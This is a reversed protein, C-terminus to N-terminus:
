RTAEGARIDVPSVDAGPPTIARPRPLGDFYLDIERERRTRLGAWVKGGALVWRRFQGPVQGDQRANVVKLLTSSRFNSGGVNFVFDCLAAYQGDLMPVTVSQMVISQAQAMDEVLLMEGQPETLGALFSPPETGDCPAKKVLHGYGITCFRAADNYLRPVWGESRKTVALGPPYVARLVAARPSGRGEITELLVGAPLHEAEARRLARDPNLTACAPLSAATSAVVVLVFSYVGSRCATSTTL